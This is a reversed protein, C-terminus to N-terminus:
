EWHETQFIGYVCCRWSRTSLETHLNCRNIFTMNTDCEINLTSLILNLAGGRGALNNIFTMNTDRGTNMTSYNFLGIAGGDPASNDIFTMDANNGVNVTSSILAMAGGVDRVASNNIFTMNADNEINLTSLNLTLAGGRHALNNIFTMNTDRRINVTSCNFLAMAGGEPASNDFFTMDVDNGINMTSSILAMAGGVDRVASNNIFTITTDNEINLTSSSLIMAGGRDALNNIFTMSTDRGINLSSHNFLAMAGGDPALNDVFTIISHNRITMISTILSMAGANGLAASNNIFIMNSDSGINLISNFVTMAGDVSNNIFTMNTNSGINITSSNVVMAVRTNMIRNINNFYLTGSLSSNRFLCHRLGIYNSLAYQNHTIHIHTQNQAVVSLMQLKLVPPCPSSIYWHDLTVKEFNIATANIFEINTCNIIVDQTVGTANFFTSKLITKTCVGAHHGTLFIMTLHIGEEILSSNLYYQLTQCPLGDPCDSNPPPTPTVYYTVAEGGVFVVSLGGLFLPLCYVIKFMEPKLDAKPLITSIVM